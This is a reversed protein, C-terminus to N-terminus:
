VYISSQKSLKGTGENVVFINHYSNRPELADDHPVDVFVNRFGDLTLKFSFTRLLKKENETFEKGDLGLCVMYRKQHCDFYLQYHNEYKEVAVTVCHKGLLDKYDQITAEMRYDQWKKKEILFYFYTFLICIIVISSYALIFNTDSTTLSNHSLIHNLILDYIIGCLIIGAFVLAFWWMNNTYNFLKYIGKKM